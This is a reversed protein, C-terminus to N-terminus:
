WSGGGGGGSGGGSFGGGSFGGGSSSAPSSTMASSAASVTSNISSSFTNINFTNYGYYWDPEEIAISEFKKIWKDSVGLVYTYPLIDYFYNPNEMVLAELKDKEATKLFNKFGRIKGLIENGYANRKPLYYLCFMMGITCILGVINSQTYIKSEIVCPLIAVLWSILGFFLITMITFFNFLFKEVGELNRSVIPIIILSIFGIGSFILGLIIEDDSAYTFLPPITIICYTIIMLLAVWLTKITLSSEFIQNKNEKTKKNRIIENITTYFKEQLDELTVEEIMQDNEKRKSGLLFLDNLFIRENEDTGDYEKVKTIVFSTKKSFLTKQKTETIKIYGKNALYILLSVVDKSNVTGKYLYAIDLSNKGEPPYFEVTEIVQDDKGYKIWLYISILLSLVPIIIMLYVYPTDEFTKVIFYGEDLELRVTLAENNVLTRNLKGNITNGDVSYTVDSTGITGYTGASFGLKSKDFEKPMNISFTVNKIITDNWGTGILNYYFEDKDKLKDKGLSYNYKITYEQLGTVTQNASGIKIVYDSNEISTSYKNNVSIQRIRAKNTSTTGDERTIVNKLPITRYIGHRPENFYVSIHEEVNLTNNENVKINVDYKDIIYALNQYETSQLGNIAQVNEKSVILLIFLLLFLPVFKFLKKM